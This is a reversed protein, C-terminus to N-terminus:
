VAMIAAWLLIIPPILPSMAADMRLNDAAARFAGGYDNFLPKTFNDMLELSLPIDRSAINILFDDNGVRRYDVAM